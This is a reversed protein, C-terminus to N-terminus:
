NHFNRFIRKRWSEYTIEKRNLYQKIDDSDKQFILMCHEKSFDRMCELVDDIQKYTPDRMENNLTSLAKM